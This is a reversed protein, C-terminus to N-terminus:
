SELIHQELEMSLIYKLCLDRLSTGDISEDWVAWSSYGNSQELRWQGCIDNDHLTLRYQARVDWDHGSVLPYTSPHDILRTSYHFQYVTSKPNIKKSLFRIYYTTLGDKSQTTMKDDYPLYDDTVVV